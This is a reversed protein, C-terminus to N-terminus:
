AAVGEFLDRTTIGLVTVLDHLVDARPLCRGQEYLKIAYPTKGIKAALEEQTLLGRRRADKLNSGFERHPRRNMKNEAVNM